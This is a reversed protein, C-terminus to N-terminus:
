CGLAGEREERDPQTERSRLTDTLVQGRVTRQPNSVSPGQLSPPKGQASCDATEASLVCYPGLFLQLLFFFQIFSCMGEQGVQAQHSEGETGPLGRVEM